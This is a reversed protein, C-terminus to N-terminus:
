DVCHYDTMQHGDSQRASQNPPSQSQFFTLYEYLVGNDTYAFFIFLVVEMYFVTWFQAEM